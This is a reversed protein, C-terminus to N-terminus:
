KIKKMLDYHLSCKYLLLSDYDIEYENNGVKCYRVEVKKSFLGGTYEVKTQLKGGISQCYLEQGQKACEIGGEGYASRTIGNAVFYGVVVVVCIILIMSIIKMKIQTKM